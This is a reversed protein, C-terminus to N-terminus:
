GIGESRKDSKSSCVRGPVELVDKVSTVETPEDERIARAKSFVTSIVGADSEM